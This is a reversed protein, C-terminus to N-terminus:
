FSPPPPTLGPVFSPRPFHFVEGSSLTVTFTGPVLYYVTLDVGIAFTGAPLDVRINSLPFAYLFLDPHPDTNNVYRIVNEFCCGSFGLDFVGGVPVSTDPKSNFDILRLPGAAANFTARDSYTTVTASLPLTMGLIFFLKLDM